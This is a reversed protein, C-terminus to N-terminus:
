APCNKLPTWILPTGSYLDHVNYSQVCSPVLIMIVEHHKNRKSSYLTPTVGQLWGGPWAMPQQTASWAAMSM